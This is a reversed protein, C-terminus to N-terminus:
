SNVQPTKFSFWKQARPSELLILYEIETYLGAETCLRNDWRVDWGKGQLAGLLHFLFQSLFFGFGFICVWKSYKCLSQFM